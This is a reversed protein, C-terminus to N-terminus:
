LYKRWYMEYWQLLEKRACGMGYKSKGVIYNCVMEFSEETCKM